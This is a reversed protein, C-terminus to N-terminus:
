DIKLLEKRSFAPEATVEEQPGLPQTRPAAVSAPYPPPGYPEPALASPAPVECIDRVSTAEDDPLEGVSLDIRLSRIDRTNGQWSAKATGLAVLEEEDTLEVFAAFPERLPADPQPRFRLAEFPLVGVTAGSVSLVVTVTTIEHLLSRM